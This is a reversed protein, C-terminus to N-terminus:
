PDPRKMGAPPMMGARLKRIILEGTEAHDALHSFDFQDLLLNATKLRVNHCTVCYQDVLARQAAAATPAASSVTTRAATQGLTSTQAESVLGASLILACGYTLLKTNVLNGLNTSM